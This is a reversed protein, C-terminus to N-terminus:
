HLPYPARDPLPALDSDPSLLEKILLLVSMDNRAYHLWGVEGWGELPIPLPAEDSCEKGHCMGLFSVNGIRCHRYERGIM